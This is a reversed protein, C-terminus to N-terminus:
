TAPIEILNAVVASFDFRTKTPTLRLIDGISQTPIVFDYIGPSSETVSTITISLATTTNYLAFDGIVLGELRDPNLVSTGYGTRRLDVTFGEDTINSYVSCVDVLGILNQFNYGADTATIVRLDADNESLDFNFGMSIGALTTDSGWMFAGDVSQADLRIPYLFGPDCSDQGTITGILNGNLDIVYVGIDTCRMSAIADLLQQPKRPLIGKFTRIGQQVYGMSGDPYAEVKSDARTNEVNKFGQIPYWRLWPDSQNILASFYAANITATLDIGNQNGDEDFYPVFVLGKAVGVIPSCGIGTNSLTTDCNCVPLGM